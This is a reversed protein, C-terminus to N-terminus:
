RLLCRVFAQNLNQYCSRSVSVVSGDSLYCETRTIKEVNLVNVLVSRNAMCFCEETWERSLQRMSGKFTYERERTKVCLYHGQVEALLIDSKRLKLFEGRCRLGIYEETGKKLGIERICDLAEELDRRHYPKLLYRVAGVKYGEFVNEKDGTIFIIPLERDRERIRRALDMGDMKKLGIDLLLCHFPLDVPYQFLLAEASQFIETVVRVGNDEYYQCIEKQLYKCQTKDDECIGIRLQKM